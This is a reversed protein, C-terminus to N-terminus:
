KRFNSKNEFLKPLKETNMLGIKTEPNQQLYQYDYKLIQDFLEKRLIFEKRNSSKRVIGLGMDTNLVSIELDDPFSQKLYVITKWVDGCWAGTWGEVNKGAAEALSRGPIAAAKTPPFCDHLVISGEPKLYYLAELVDKLSAEFTHLGDIFVIDPYNEPKFRSLRKTFFKESTMQYYSNRLNTRNRVIYKLLYVPYIRFAPDVAIKKRCEIPLFTKGKHVGIELYHEYNFKDILYQLLEKRNM